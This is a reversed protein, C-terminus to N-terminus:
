VSESSIFNNTIKQLHKSYVDEGLIEQNLELIMKLRIFIDLSKGKKDM